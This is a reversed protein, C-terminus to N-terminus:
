AKKQAKLEVFFSILLSLGGFILVSSGYIINSINRFQYGGDSASYGDISYYCILYGVLLGLGIGVLLSAIKLTTYVSNTIIKIPLNLTSDLMEIDAKVNAKEIIALREKKRVFLEFLKYIGLTIMGVVLPVMIFDLMIKTKLTFLKTRQITQRM